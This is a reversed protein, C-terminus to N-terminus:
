LPLQTCSGKKMPPIHMHVVVAIVIIAIASAFECIQVIFAIQLTHSFYDSRNEAVCSFIIFIPEM